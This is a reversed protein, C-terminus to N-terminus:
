GGGVTKCCRARLEGTARRIIGARHFGEPLDRGVRVEQRKQADPGENTSPNYIYNDEDRPGFQVVNGQETIRAVSALPNRCDSVQFTM